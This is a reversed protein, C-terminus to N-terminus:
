TVEKQPASDPLHRTISLWNKFAATTLEQDGIMTHIYLLNEEWKVIEFTTGLVEVIEGKETEVVFKWLPAINRPTAKLTNKRAM